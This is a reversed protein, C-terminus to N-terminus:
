SPIKGSTKNAIGFCKCKSAYRSQDVSLNLKIAVAAHSNGRSRLLCIKASTVSDEGVLKVFTSWDTLALQQLEKDLETYFKDEPRM